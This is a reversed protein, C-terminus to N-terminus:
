KLYNNKRIIYNCYVIETIASLAVAVAIVIVNPYIYVGVFMYVILSLLAVVQNKVVYSNKNNPMFIFNIYCGVILWSFITVSLIVSLYYSEPLQNKGLFDVAFQGLIVVFFAIILSLFFEVAIVKKILSTSLKEIIKPFLAVNLSMVITRPISIIKMALDYIAVEKMGFYLGLVLIVSQDKVVATVSNLFFPYSDKVLPVIDSTGKVHIRIKEIKIILFFAFLSTLLTTLSMILAFNFLDDASKVFVFIFPLSLIKIIVQIITINRLKQIGQFYWMPLFIAALVQIYVVALIASNDLFFLALFFLITTIFFIYIKSFLVKNFVDQKVKLNDKNESIIKLAPLDFGFNVVYMFLTIIAFSFVYVGYNEAGLKLILYPYIALYFFSNIFQLLTM